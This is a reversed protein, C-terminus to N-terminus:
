TALGKKIDARLGVSSEKEFPWLAYGLAAPCDSKDHADKRETEARGHEDREATELSEVLKPAVPEGKDNCEIFLWRLGNTDCFMRNLMDIRVDKKIPGTGTGDARYQAAKVDLGVRKFIRYLNLDPKDEAQGFPQARVHVLEGDDRVNCGFMKARAVIALGSQETTQHKGFIEARVWWVPGQMYRRLTVRGDPQVIKEVQPVEYADLFITASKATGPDHGALLAHRPNGTKARLVISTIKRAGLPIPRISEKASFNFYLRSEPPLDEALFRRRFEREHTTARKQELFDKSVFPSDTILMKREVWLPNGHKDNASLIRKCLGRFHPDEKATCSAIQKYCHRGDRFPASRGRSGVDDFADVQDQLEDQAAASFNYGQIPAGGKASTQTTSVFRIRTKDALIMLKQAVRYRYWHKPWLKFVEVQVLDIRKETPCAVGIERDEALLELWRFYLWQAIATSKGGGESSRVLQGLPEDDSHLIVREQDQSCYWTVPNRTPGVIEGRKRDLIGGYTKSRVVRIRPKGEILEEGEDDAVVTKLTVGIDVFRGSEVSTVYEDVKDLLIAREQKRKRYGLNSIMAVGVLLAVLVIARRRM